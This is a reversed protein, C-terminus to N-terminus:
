PENSAPADLSRGIGLRPANPEREQGRECLPSGVRVGPEHRRRRPVPTTSDSDPIMGASSVRALVRDLSLLAEPHLVVSKVRSRYSVLVVLWPLYTERCNADCQPVQQCGSGCQNPSSTPLTGTRDANNITQLQAQVEEAHIDIDIRILSTDNLAEEPLPQHPAPGRRSANLSDTCDAFLVV